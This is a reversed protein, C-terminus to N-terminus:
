SLSIKIRGQIRFRGNSSYWQESTWPQPPELTPLLVPHRRVAQEVAAAARELAGDAIGLFKHTHLTGEVWHAEDMIGFTDPLARLLYDIM